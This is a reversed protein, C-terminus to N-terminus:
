GKMQSISKEESERTGLISMLEAFGNLHTMVVFSGDPTSVRAGKFSAGVINETKEVSVERISYRRVGKRWHVELQDDLIVLKFPERLELRIRLAQEVIVVCLFVSITLLGWPSWAAKGAVHVVVWWMGFFCLLWVATFRFGM